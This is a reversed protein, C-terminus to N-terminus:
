GATRVCVSVVFRATGGKRGRGEVNTKASLVWLLMLGLSHDATTPPEDTLWREGCYRRRVSGPLNEGTTYAGNKYPTPDSSMFSGNAHAKTGRVGYTKITKPSDSRMEPDPQTPFIFM